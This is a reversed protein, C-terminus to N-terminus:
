EELRELQRMLDVIIAAGVFGVGLDIRLRVMRRLKAATAATFESAGPAVPEILGLRVLRFLRGRSIGAAEALADASLTEEIKAPAGPDDPSKQSRPARM